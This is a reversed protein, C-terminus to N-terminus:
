QRAPFIGSLAICYNLTLSPQMNNHSAGGTSSLAPLYTAPSAKVTAYAFKTADAVAAPVNNRPVNTTGAGSNATLGHTHAPLQSTGTLAVTETGGAVGEQYVPPVISRHLMTRGRLDPLNFNSGSGGYTTGILAYLAQNQYIALSQGDCTSWGKPAFSFSFLRIEGVFPDM